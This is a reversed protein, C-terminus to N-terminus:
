FLHIVGVMKPGLACNAFYFICHRGNWDYNKTCAQWPSKHRFHIFWYFLNMWIWEEWNKLEVRSENIVHCIIDTHIILLKMQIKISYNNSHALMFKEMWVNKSGLWPDVQDYKQTTPIDKFTPPFPKAITLDLRRWRELVVVPSSSFFSHAWSVNVAKTVKDLSIHRFKVKERAWAFGGAGGAGAWETLTTLVGSCPPLFSYSRKCSEPEYLWQRHPLLLPANLKCTIKSGM